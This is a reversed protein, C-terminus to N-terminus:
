KMRRICEIISPMTILEQIKTLDVTIDKPRKVAINMDDISVPTIAEANYGLLECCLLGYKYKSIGDISGINYIGRLDKINDILASLGNVDIFNSKVDPWLTVNGAQLGDIVFKHFAKNKGVINVRLILHDCGSMVVVIEGQLKSRSYENCPNIYENEKYHGGADGDYVAHTSIYIMKKKLARCIRAINATGKVNIEDADIPYEECWNVDIIAACHIVYKCKSKKIDNYLENYDLINIKSYESEVIDCGKVNYMNAIESGLMGCIGSVYFSM